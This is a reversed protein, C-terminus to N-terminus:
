VFSPGDPIQPAWLICSSVRGSTKAESDNSEHPGCRGAPGVMGEWGVGRGIKREGKERWERELIAAWLPFFWAFIALAVLFAEAMPTSSTSSSPTVTPPVAFSAVAAAAPFSGGIMRRGLPPALPMPRKLTSSGTYRYRCMGPTAMGADLSM